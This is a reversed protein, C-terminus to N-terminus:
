PQEREQPTSKKKIGFLAESIVELQELFRQVNYGAIFCVALYGYISWQKLEGQGGFIFLGARIFVYATAGTIASLIPRIVYWPHWDADWKKRVCAKLYVARLCNVLGGGLGSLVCSLLIFENVNSVQLGSSELWFASAVGAILLVLLYGTIGKMTM